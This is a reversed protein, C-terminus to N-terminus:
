HTRGDTRWTAPLPKGRLVNVPPGQVFYMFSGMYIGRKSNVSYNM